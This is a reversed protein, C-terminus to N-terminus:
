QMSRMSVGYVGECTSKFVQQKGVIRMDPGGNAGGRTARLRLAGGGTGRALQVDLKKKAAKQAAQERWFPGNRDLELYRAVTYKRYLKAQATFESASSSPHSGGEIGWAASPGLGGHM